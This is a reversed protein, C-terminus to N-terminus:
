RALRVTPVAGRVILRCGAAARFRLNGEADAQFPRIMAYDLPPAADLLYERGDFFRTERGQALETGVAAPTYFAPIGAGAARM